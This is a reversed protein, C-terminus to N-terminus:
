VRITKGLRFVIDKLLSREEDTLIDPDEKAAEELARIVLEIQEPTREFFDQWGGKPNKYELQIMKPNQAGAQTAWNSLDSETFDQCNQYSRDRATRVVPINDKTVGVFWCRRIPLSGDNGGTDLLQNDFAQKFQDNVHNKDGTGGWNNWPGPGLLLYKVRQLYAKAKESEGKTKYYEAFALGQMAWAPANSAFEGGANLYVNKNPDGMFGFEHFDTSTKLPPNFSYYYPQRLLYDIYTQKTVPKQQISSSTSPVLENQSLPSPCEPPKPVIVSSEEKMGVKVIQFAHIQWKNDHCSLGSDVKTCSYVIVYNEGEPLQATSLSASASSLIWDSNTAASEAFSQKQWIGNILVYYYKYIIDEKVSLTLTEGQALSDSSITFHTPETYGSAALGPYFAHGALPQSLPSRSCSIIAVSSLLLLVLFLKSICRM